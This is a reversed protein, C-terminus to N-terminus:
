KIFQYQSVKRYTHTNNSIKVTSAQIPNSSPFSQGSICSVSQVESM